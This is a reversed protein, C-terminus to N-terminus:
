YLILVVKQNPRVLQAAMAGPLAFGMSCFGNTILCTNPIYNNVSIFISIVIIFCKM